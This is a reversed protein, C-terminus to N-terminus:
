TALITPFSQCCLHDKGILSNHQCHVFICHQDFSVCSQNMFKKHAEQFLYILNSPPQSNIFSHHLPAINKPPIDTLTMSKYQNGQTHQVTNLTSGGGDHPAHFMRLESNRKKQGANYLQGIVDPNYNIPKLDLLVCTIDLTNLCWIGLDSVYFPM